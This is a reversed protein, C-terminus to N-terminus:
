RTAPQLSRWAALQLHQSRGTVRRRHRPLLRHPQRRVSLRHHLPRHRLHLPPRPWLPPPLLLLSSLVRAPHPLKQRQLLLLPKRRDRRRRSPCALVSGPTASGSRLRAPATALAGPCRPPSAGGCSTSTGRRASFCPAQPPFLIYATPWTPLRQPRASTTCIQTTHTTHIVFRPSSSSRSGPLVEVLAGPKPSWLDPQRPRECRVLAARSSM